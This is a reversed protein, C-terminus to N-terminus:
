GFELASKDFFITASPWVKLADNRIRGLTTVAKGTEHESAATCKLSIVVKWTNSAILTAEILPTLNFRVDRLTLTTDLKFSISITGTIGMGFKNVPARLLEFTHFQTHLLGRLNSFARFEAPTTTTAVEFTHQNEPSYLCEFAYQEEL